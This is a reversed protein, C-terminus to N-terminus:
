KVARGSLNLLVGIAASSMLLSSGGYSLFPLPLGTVPLLGTVVGLNIAINVFLLWTMGSALLERVIERGIGRAAGTVIAVKDKDTM